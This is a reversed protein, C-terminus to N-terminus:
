SSCELERRRDEAKGAVDIQDTADGAPNAESGRAKGAIGSDRGKIPVMNTTPSREITNLAIAKVTM